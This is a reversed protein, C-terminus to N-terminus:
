KSFIFETRRNLKYENESCKIGNICRNMPKSEGFGKARLREKFIGKEIFFTMVAIARKESLAQNTAEDGRSDTHSNIELKINKHEIMLAVIEDLSKTAESTVKFSNVDFYIDKLVKLEKANSKSFNKLSINDDIVEDSLASLEVSILKYEFGNQSKIMPKLLSGDQQAIFLKGDEVPGNSDPVDIKYDFGSKLGKFEFDGFQDTRATQISMNKADKLIVTFNECPKVGKEGMLLKAKYTISSVVKDNSSKNSYINGTNSCKKNSKGIHFKYDSKLVVPYSAKGEGYAIANINSIVIKTANSNAILEKTESSFSSGSYTVTNLGTSTVLNLEYFHIVVRNYKKDISEINLENLNLIQETSITDGTKFCDINVKFGSTQSFCIKGFLIALGVLLKYLM